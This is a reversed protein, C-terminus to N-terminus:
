AAPDPEAIRRAVHGFDLTLVRRLLSSPQTHTRCSLWIVGDREVPVSPEGCDCFPTEREAREIRELMGLM